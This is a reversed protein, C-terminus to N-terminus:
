PAEKLLDNFEQKFDKRIVLFGLMQFFIEDFEFIRLNDNYLFALVPSEQLTTLQFLSHKPDCESEIFFLVDSGPWVKRAEELASRRRLAGRINEHLIYTHATGTYTGKLYQFLLKKCGTCSPYKLYVMIVATDKSHINYANGYIDNVPNEKSEQPYVAMWTFLVVPIILIRKFSWTM